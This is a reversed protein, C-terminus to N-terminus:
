NVSYINSSVSSLTSQANSHNKDGQTLAAKLKTTNYWFNNIVQYFLIVWSEIHMIPYNKTYTESMNKWNSDKEM